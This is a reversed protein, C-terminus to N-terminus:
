LDFAICGIHRRRSIVRPGTHILLARGSGTVAGM